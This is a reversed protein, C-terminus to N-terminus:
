RGKRVYLSAGGAAVELALGAERLLREREPDLPGDVVVRDLDGVSVPEPPEPRPAGMGALFPPPLVPVLVTPALVYQARFYAAMEDLRSAAPSCWYGARAGLRDRFADLRAARAEAAPEPVRRTAAWFLRAAPVGGLAVLAAAVVSSRLRSSRVAPLPAM